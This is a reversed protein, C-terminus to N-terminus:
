WHAPKSAPKKRTPVNVPMQAQELEDDRIYRRVWHALDTLRKNPVKGTGASPERLPMVLGIKAAPVDARVMRLAPELDSDNSCIVLQESQGLVADRYVHLAMNVDTQKEEIMWVPFVEKKDPALGPEYRPLATPEFVHFGQIIELLQPHRARLARHYQTQAQASAEGHRAYSAKIPATFFKITDVVASPDQIQVIRDRFLAVVDLWKYPTGKLRSFYLNFGDVYITTRSVKSDVWSFAM